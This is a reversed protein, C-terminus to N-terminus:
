WGYISLDQISFISLIKEIPQHTKLGDIIIKIKHKGSESDGWLYNCHILKDMILYVYNEKTIERKYKWQIMIMGHILDEKVDMRTSYYTIRNDLVEPSLSAISSLKSNELLPASTWESHNSNDLLSIFFLSTNYLSKTRLKKLDCAVALNSKDQVYLSDIKQILNKYESHNMKILVSM